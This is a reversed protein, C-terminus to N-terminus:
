CKYYYWSDENRNKIIKKFNGPLTVKKLEVDGEFLSEGIEVVSNPIVVEALAKNEAFAKKGIATVTDPVIVKKLEPNFYVAREGIEVITYGDITKPIELTEVPQNYGAFAATKKSEDLVRYWYNGSLIDGDDAQVAIVAFLMSVLAIFSCLALLLPKRKQPSESMFSQGSKKGM